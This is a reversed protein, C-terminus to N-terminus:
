LYGACIVLYTIEFMVALCHTTHHQETFQSRCLLLYKIVHFLAIMPLLLHAEFAVSNTSILNMIFYLPSGYVVAADFLRPMPVLYGLAVAVLQALTMFFVLITSM